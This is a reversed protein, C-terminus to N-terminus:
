IVTYVVSEESDLHRCHFDGTTDIWLLIELKLADATDAIIRRIVLVHGQKLELWLGNEIIVIDCDSFGLSRQTDCRRRIEGM